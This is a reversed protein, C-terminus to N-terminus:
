FYLALSPLVPPGAGVHGLQFLDMLNAQRFTHQLPPTGGGEKLEQRKIENGKGHQLSVQM